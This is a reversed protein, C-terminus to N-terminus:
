RMRNFWQLSKKFTNVMVWGSSFYFLMTLGQVGLFPLSLMVGTGALLLGQHEM